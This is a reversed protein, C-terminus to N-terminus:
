KLGPIRAGSAAWNEYSQFPLGLRDYHVRLYGDRGREVVDPRLVKVEQAM